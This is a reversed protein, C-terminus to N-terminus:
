TETKDSNKPWDLGFRQAYWFEDYKREGFLYDRERDVSQINQSFLNWIKDWDAQDNRNKFKEIWQQWVPETCNKRMM